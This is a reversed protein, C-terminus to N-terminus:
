FEHGNEMRYMDGYMYDISEVADCATRLSIARTKLDFEVADFLVDFLKERASKKM